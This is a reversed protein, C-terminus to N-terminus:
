PRYVTLQDVAFALSSVSRDPAPHRVGDCVSLNVILHASWNSGVGTRDAHARVGNVWWTLSSAGFHVTLHVRGGPRISRHLYSMYSRGPSQAHNSLELLHPNDPHYEFVDVENGGDRWTWIAPWAGHHVPLRVRTVLVDGTRVRFDRASGETTLLGTNWLGDGRRTALFRGTRSYSADPVLHDLKHDPRNTPGGNPYAWTRGAVWQSRSTFNAIFVPAMGPLRRDTSAASRTGTAISRWLRGILASSFETM